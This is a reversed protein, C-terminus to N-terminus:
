VALHNTEVPGAGVAQYMRLALSNSPTSALFCPPLLTTKNGFSPRLYTATAKEPNAAGSHDLLRSFELALVHLSPTSIVACQRWSMYDLSM